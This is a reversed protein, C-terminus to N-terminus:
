TLYSNSNPFQFYTKLVLQLTRGRGWVGEKVEEGEGGGGLKTANWTTPNSLTWVPQKSKLLNKNSDQVLRSFFICLQLLTAQHNAYNSKTGYIPTWIWAPKSDRIWITFQTKMFSVLMCYDLLYRLKYHPGDKYTDNFLYKHQLYQHRWWVDDIIFIPTTRHILCLVWKTNKFWWSMGESEEWRVFVVM